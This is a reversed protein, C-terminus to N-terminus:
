TLDAAPTSKTAETLNRPIISIGGSAELVAYEIDEMRWIGRSIRAAALVDEEDVRSQKMRQQLTKGHEVIILPEGEVIKELTTFRQKLLSMGIDLMVLTLVLTAANILSSDERVMAQQTTESIILLLILDFTTLQAMTRKGSLRFVLMLFFYIGAASLISSM